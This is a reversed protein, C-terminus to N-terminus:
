GAVPWKIQVKRNNALCDRLYLNVLSQYPVGAESAMGKFYEVVDSLDFALHAVQCDRGWACFYRAGAAILNRSLEFLVERSVTSFDAVLLAVSFEGPLDSVAPVIDAFADYELPYLGRSSDDPHNHLHEITAM